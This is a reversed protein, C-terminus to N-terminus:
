HLYYAAKTGDLCLGEPEDVMVKNFTHAAFSQSVLVGVILFLRIM